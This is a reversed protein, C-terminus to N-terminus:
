AEDGLFNWDIADCLCNLVIRQMAEIIVARDSPLALHVDGDILTESLLGGSRGTLAIVRLHRDHAVATAELVNQCNGFLSLAVFVDGPRGIGEIQRAFDPVSQESFANRDQGHKASLAVAPLALRDREFRGVLASVLRECEADCPANACAIIKHDDSLAAVMAETASSLPEVLLETVSQMAKAHEDFQQQIREGLTMASIIAASFQAAALLPALWSNADHM